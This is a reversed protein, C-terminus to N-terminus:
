GGLEKGARLLDLAMQGIWNALRFLPVAMWLLTSGVAMRAVPHQDLYTRIM